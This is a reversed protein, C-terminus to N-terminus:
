VKENQKEKIVKNVMRKILNLQNLSLESLLKEYKFNELDYLLKQTISGREDYLAWAVNYCKDNNKDFKACSYNQKFYEKSM